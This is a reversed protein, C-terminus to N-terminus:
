LLEKWGKINDPNYISFKWFLQKCSARYSELNSGHTNLVYDIMNKGAEIDDGKYYYGYTKLMEYNHIVPFGMFLYELFLYNYDNNVAHHIIINQKFGKAADRITLRNILFLRKDRYIDLKSLINTLFYTSSLLKDGNIVVAGDIKSPKERYFAECIMIPILSCKQFSINPEMISFGYPGENSWKYMDVLDQIMSSEWVYPAIKSNPYVDYLASSYDQSLHYHPSMLMTGNSGYSHHKNYRNGFTVKEIDINLINGLFLTFIKTGKEKLFIRFSEPCNAAVIFFAYVPFPNTDFETLECVRYQKEEVSNSKKNILFYPFYGILEFQRYLFLCNQHLGNSFLNNGEILSATILINRKQARIIKYDSEDTTM